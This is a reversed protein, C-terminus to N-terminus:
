KNPHSTKTPQQKDDDYTITLEVTGAHDIENTHAHKGNPIVWSWEYTNGATKELDYDLTLVLQRPYACTLHKTDNPDHNAKFMGVEAAEVVEGLNSLPTPDQKDLVDFEFHYEVQTNRKVKTENTHTYGLGVKFTDPTKGGADKEDDTITAVGLTLKVEFKKRYLALTSKEGGGCVVAPNTWTYTKRRDVHEMQEKLANVAQYLDPLESYKSYDVEKPPPTPKAPAPKPPPSHHQGLIPPTEALAGMSVMALAVVVAPRLRM